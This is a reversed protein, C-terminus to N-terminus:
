HDNNNTPLMTDVGDQCGIQDDHHLSPVNQLVVFRLSQQLLLVPHKGREDLGVHLCSTLRRCSVSQDTQQHEEIKVCFDKIKVLGVSRRSVGVSWHLRHHM